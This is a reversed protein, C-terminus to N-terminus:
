TFKGRTCFIKEVTVLLRCIRSLASLYNIMSQKQSLLENYPAPHYIENWEMV